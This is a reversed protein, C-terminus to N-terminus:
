ESVRPALLDHLKQHLEDLSGNNEIRADAMRMVGIINMDWPETSALEREEHMVWTDYDVHDTSLGRAVIREYRLKREADVALM